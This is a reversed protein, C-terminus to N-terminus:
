LIRSDLVNWTYPPILLSVLADDRVNAVEEILASIDKSIQDNFQQVIKYRESQLKDVMNHLSTLKDGFTQLPDHFTIFCEFQTCLQCTLQLIQIVNCSVWTTSVMLTGTTHAMSLQVYYNMKAYKFVTVGWKVLSFLTSHNRTVHNKLNYMSTTPMHDFSRFVYNRM